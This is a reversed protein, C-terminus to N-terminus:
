IRTSSPCIYSCHIVLFVLTEPTSLTTSFFLGPHSILSSHQKPHDLFTECIHHCQLLTSSSPESPLSVHMGPLHTHTHTYESHDFFAWCPQLSDVSSYLPLDYHYSPGTTDSSQEWVKRYMFVVWSRKFIKVDLEYKQNLKTPNLGWHGTTELARRTIGNHLWPQSSATLAMTLLHSPENHRAVWSSWLAWVPLWVNNQIDGHPHKPPSKYKLQHVKLLVSQEGYHPHAEDWWNFTQFSCFVSGEGSCSPIRGASSKQAQLAGNVTGSERALQGVTCIKTKDAELFEHALGKCMRSTSNRLLSLSLQETTDLEKELPDEWHLSWVWTEQMAPPNKVVQAVLSAWSYQLPYGIGERTSRGWGPILGPDGASCASEKGTSSDPFGKRLLVM